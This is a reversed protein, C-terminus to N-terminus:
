RPDGDAQHELPLLAKDNDRTGASCETVQTVNACIFWTTMQNGVGSRRRGSPRYVLGLHRGVKRRMEMGNYICKSRVGVVGM